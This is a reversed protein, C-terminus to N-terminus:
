IGRLIRRGICNAMVIHVEIFQRAVVVYVTCIHLV